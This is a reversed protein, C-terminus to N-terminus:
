RKQLREGTWKTRGRNTTLEGELTGDDLMRATIPGGAVGGHEPPPSDESKEGKLTLTREMYTGELLQRQGMILIVGKVETEKQELELGVQHGEILMIWVGSVDALSGAPKSQAALALPLLSLAVVLTKELM